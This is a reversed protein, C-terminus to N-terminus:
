LNSEVELRLGRVELRLSVFHLAVGLREDFFFKPKVKSSVNILNITHVKFVACNRLNSTASM